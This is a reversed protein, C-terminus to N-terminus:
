IMNDYSALVGQDSFSLLAECARHRTSAREVLKEFSIVACTFGKEKPSEFSGQLLM